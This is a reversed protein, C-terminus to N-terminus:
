ASLRGIGGGSVELDGKALLNRRSTAGSAVFCEVLCRCPRSVETAAPSWSSMVHHKASDADGIQISQCRAAGMPRTYGGDVAM